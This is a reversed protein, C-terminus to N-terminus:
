TETHCPTTSYPVQKAKSNDVRSSKLKEELEAVRAVLLKAGETDQYRTGGPTECYAVEPPRNTPRVFGVSGSHTSDSSIIHKM